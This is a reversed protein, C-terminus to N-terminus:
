VVLALRMRLRGTAMRIPIQLYFPDNLNQAPLLGLNHLGAGALWNRGSAVGLTLSRLRKSGFWTPCYLPRTNSDHWYSLQWQRRLLFNTNCAAITNSCATAVNNYGTRRSGLNQQYPALGGWGAISNARRWAAEWPKCGAAVALAVM